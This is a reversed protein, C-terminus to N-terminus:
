DFDVEFSPPEPETLPSLRYCMIKKGRESTERSLLERGRQRLCHRLITLYRPVSLGEVLYKKAAYPLYYPNLETLTETLDTRRFTPKKIELPDELNKFGIQQVLRVLLDDPVPKRLLNVM